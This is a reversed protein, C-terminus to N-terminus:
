VIDDEERKKKSKKKKSKKVEGDEGVAGLPPLVNKQSVLPMDDYQDGLNASLGRGHGQQGVPPLPQPRLTVEATADKDVTPNIASKSVASGTSQSDMAEKAKADKHQTSVPPESRHTTHSAPDNRVKSKNNRGEPPNRGAGGEDVGNLFALLALLSVAVDGGKVVIGIILYVPWCDAESSEDKCVLLNYAIVASISYLFSVVVWGIMCLHTPACLKETLWKRAKPVAFLVYLIWAGSGTSFVIFLVSWVIKLVKCDCVTSNCTTNEPHSTTTTTVPLYYSQDFTYYLHDTFDAHIIEVQLKIEDGNSSPAKYTVGVIMKGASKTGCISCGTTDTESYSQIDANSADLLEAQNAKNVFIKYWNITISDSSTPFICPTTISVNGDTNATPEQPNLVATSNDVSFDTVELTFESLLGTNGEQCGYKICNAYGVTNITYSFTNAPSGIVSSCEACAPLCSNAITRSCIGVTSGNVIWDMGNGNDSTCQIVSSVGVKSSSHSIQVTEVYYITSLQLIVLGLCCMKKPEMSKPVFQQDGGFAEVGWPGHTLVM